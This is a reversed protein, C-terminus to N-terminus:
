MFSSKTKSQPQLTCVSKTSSMCTKQRLCRVSVTNNVVVCEGLGYLVVCMLECRHFVFVGACM